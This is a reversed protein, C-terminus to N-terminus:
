WAPIVEGGAATVMMRIINPDMAKKDFSKVSGDCMAALGQSRKANGLEPLSGQGPAFAIEKPQPWPIADTTDVAFITNSVGDAIYNPFVAAKMLKPDYITGPGTFTRYHTQTTGPEDLPSVYTKILISATQQNQGENWDQNLNFQRYVGEQEVYPLIHVRWSVRGEAPPLEANGSAYNLAGLSVQKMNNMESMRAAAERVKSVAPLLLGIAVLGGCGLIVVVVVIIIIAVMSCGGSKKERPGDDYDDDDRRNRRRPRDDGDDNSGRDRSRPRDDDDEIPPM